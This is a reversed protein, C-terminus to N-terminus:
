SLTKKAFGDRVSEQIWNPWGRLGAIIGSSPPLVLQGGRGSFIQALVPGSVDGITLMNEGIREAYQQTMPTRVFDPHVITTKVGRAKHLYKIESTLGEHFVLAGAKTVSYEISPPLVIFSALSAVTIVHGKDAKIMAPLFQKATFWLAILNVGLSQRLNEESIDFISNVRAIGANNVLISPDGGFSKRVAEATRELEQLSTIDCMFYVARSNSELAPPPGVIDLVAVRVGKATLGQVLALGIGSCGGTVVAIENPWDWTKNPPSSSIRWNNTALSNLARNLTRTIGLGILVKLIPRAVRFFTAKTSDTRLLKELVEQPAYLLAALLAVPAVNKVISTIAM